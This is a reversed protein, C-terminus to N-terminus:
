IYRNKYREGVLEPHKIYVDLLIRDELSQDASDRNMIDKTVIPDYKLPSFLRFGSTQAWTGTVCLMFLIATFFRM